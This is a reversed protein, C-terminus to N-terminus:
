FIKKKQKISNAEITQIIKEHEEEKENTINEIFYM